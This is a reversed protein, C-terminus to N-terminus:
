KIWVIVKAMLDSTTEGEPQLDRDPRSEFERHIGRGYSCTLFHSSVSRDYKKTPSDMVATIM